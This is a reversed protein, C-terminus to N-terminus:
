SIPESGARGVSRIERIGGCEACSLYRELIDLTLDAQLKELRIRDGRWYGPDRLREGMRRIWGPRGGAIRVLARRDSPDIARQVASSLLAALPEGRLPPVPIRYYALRLRLVRELEHPNEVDAAIAIGLGTGRLSRLFGRMAGGAERLDDLLLFGPRSELAMRLASRLQRQTRSERSVGSYARALSVTVDRLATTRTSLGCPRGESIARERIRELWTSKGIGWPGWVLVTNGARLLAEVELLTRDRLTSRPDHGTM